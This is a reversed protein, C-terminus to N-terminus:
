LTGSLRTLSCHSVPVRRQMGAPRAQPAGHSFGRHGHTGWTHPSSGFRDVTRSSSPVTRNTGRGNRCRMMTRAMRERVAPTQTRGRLQPPPHRLAPLDAHFSASRPSVAPPDRQGAVGVCQRGSGPATSALGIIIEEVSASGDHLAVRPTPRRVPVDPTGSSSALYQGHAVVAMRQNLM